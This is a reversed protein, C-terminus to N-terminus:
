KKGFTNAAPGSGQAQKYASGGSKPANKDAKPKKKEKNSRQEKSMTNEEVSERGIRLPRVLGLM